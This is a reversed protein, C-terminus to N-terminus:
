SSSGRADRAAGADAGRGGALPLSLTAQERGHWGLNRGWRGFAGFLLGIGGLLAILSLVSWVVVNATPKNDVRPEPPWNNTYSYNHGPGTRRRPGRRGARLVRDAPAARDRDTIASPACATSPRRTPSSAATTPCSGASRTPRRAGDADADEHARRLPEHPLGRDDARRATPAPAATPATVLDSSRRLYDATYDPGLYAGHGFASGYEMLGNHLFVQQGKQIDRGTYLVQGQPDVVASPVPPHAMYTRYALLGLVFFGFLVVLLSRRCGGKSVLLAPKRVRGAAAVVLHKGSASAKKVSRDPCLFAGGTISTGALGSSRGRGTGRRRPEEVLENPQAARWSGPVRGGRGPGDCSGHPDLKAAEGVRPQELM